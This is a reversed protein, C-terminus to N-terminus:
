ERVGIVKFLRGHARPLTFFLSSPSFFSPAPGFGGSVTRGGGRGHFSVGADYQNYYQHINHCAILVNFTQAPLAWEANELSQVRIGDHCVSGFCIAGGRRGLGLRARQGPLRLRVKRVIGAFVFGSGIAGDLCRLGM